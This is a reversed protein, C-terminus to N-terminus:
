KTLRVYVVKIGAVLREMRNEDLPKIVPNEKLREFEEPPLMCVRVPIQMEPIATVEREIKNRLSFSNPETRELYWAFAMWSTEGAKNIAALARERRLEFRTAEAKKYRQELRPSRSIRLRWHAYSVCCVECAHTVASGREILHCIKLFLRKTLTTPRGGKSRHPEDRVVELSIASANDALEPHMQFTLKDYIEYLTENTRHM